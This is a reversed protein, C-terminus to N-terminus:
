LENIHMRIESCAAQAQEPDVGFDPAGYLGDIRVMRFKSSQVNVEFTPLSKIAAAVTIPASGLYIDGGILHYLVGSAVTGEIECSSKAVGDLKPDVELTLFARGQLTAGPENPNEAHCVVGNEVDSVTKGCVEATVGPYGDGEDDRVAACGEVCAEECVDTRGVALSDCRPAAEDWSPLDDGSKTSGVTVVFREFNVGAGNESGALAGSVVSTAVNPLADLLATPVGIQTSVLNDSAENCDGVLATVMPLEISCLTARVGTLETTQPAQDITIMLLMTAQNVQDVPCLTIPGGLVGKLKVDLRGFAAWTGSLSLEDPEGECLVELSGGGAGSGTSSAM